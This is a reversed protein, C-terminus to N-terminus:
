VYLWVIYYNTHSKSNSAIHVGRSISPARIFATAIWFASEIAGSAM